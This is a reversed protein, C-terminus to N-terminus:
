FIPLGPIEVLGAQTGMYSEAAKACEQIGSEAAAVAADSVQGEVVAKIETSDNVGSQNHYNDLQKEICKENSFSAPFVKKMAKLANQKAQKYTQKRDSVTGGTSTTLTGVPCKMAELSQFTHMWGHSGTHQNIGEACVCPAQNEDYPISGTNVGQLPTSGAGGRGTDFLSSAEVLHHPTQPPCCGSPAYPQLFCRRANMCKEAANHKALAPAQGSAKAGSPKGSKAYLPLPKYTLPKMAECLDESGHPTFDSCSDKEQQIDKECDGGVKMSAEDVYPWTPSNGPFSAHNHTTIDLNRVVNEGEVKVDMSWMNFYVKGTNQSTILGKKPACGAEDGTSKKFYSKNKLMVEKGSISVSTSGDSTDSALGTNPYPIPVGPPTAPTQPPTMCVDPFACISKGQASKCSIEM